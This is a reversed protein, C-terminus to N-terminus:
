LTKGCDICFRDRSKRRVAHKEENCKEVVSGNVVEGCTPCFRIPANPRSHNMNPCRADRYNIADVAVLVAAAVVAADAVSVAVAVVAAVKM